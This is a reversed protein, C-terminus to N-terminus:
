QAKPESKKLEQEVMESIFASAGFRGNYSAIQKRTEVYQPNTDSLNPAKKDSAYVFLGSEAGIAMDSVQGKEIRELAGLVTYDLDQPRTRLTFPALAKGQIKLGSAAAAATAAKEITDGAKLRTELQSKAVKGADVFRKRRESEVYDSAVSARVEAILPKRTAQTERWLLIVAGTPTTLADSVVRDKNLRFAESAIEPSGSLELPAAERSFPPLNKLTLKRTAIFAEVAPITKAKAEFLALSLDSAAKIALKQARELKLTSEVQARVAAYDAAADAPPTVTPAAGAPKAADAPKPFRAPNADYFARVEAETVTITAILPLAPFDVYSAVVRPPIDYRGGSQEFFKTLEADTSKVEPKFGAYDASATALTWTTDAREVQNKIEASLVYGPGALLAQV